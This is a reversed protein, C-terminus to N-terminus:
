HVSLRHRDSLLAGTLVSRTDEMVCDDCEKGTALGECSSHNCRRTRPRQRADAIDPPFDEGTRPSPGVPRLIGLPTPVCCLLQSKGGFTQAASTTIARNEQSVSFCLSISGSAIGPPSQATQLLNNCPKAPATGKGKVKTGKTARRRPSRRKEVGDCEAVSSKTAGLWQQQRTCASLEPSSSSCAHTNT